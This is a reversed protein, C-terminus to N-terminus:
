IGLLLRMEDDTFPTIKVPENIPELMDASVAWVRGRIVEVGEESHYSHYGSPSRDIKKVTFTKGCMDKMKESFGFLIRGELDESSLEEYSRVRLVSGVVIDEDRM